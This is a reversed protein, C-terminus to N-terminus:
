QRMPHGSHPGSLSHSTAVDGVAIPWFRDETLTQKRAARRSKV